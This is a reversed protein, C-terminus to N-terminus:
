MSERERMEKYRRLVDRYAFGSFVDKASYAWITYGATVLRDYRNTAREVNFQQEEATEGYKGLGSIEIVIRTRRIQFDPRRTALRSDAVTVQPQVDIVGDKRVQALFYAEAASEVYPDVLDLVRTLTEDSLAAERLEALPYADHAVVWSTAMFCDEFSHYRALDLLVRPITAVKAIKGDVYSSEGLLARLRRGGGVDKSGRNMAYEVPDDRGVRVWMGWLLAASAGAIVRTGSAGLALARLRHQEWPPLENFGDREVYVGLALRLHTGSLVGRSLARRGADDCDRSFVLKM